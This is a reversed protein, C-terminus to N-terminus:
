DGAEYVQYQMKCELQRLTTRPDMDDVWVWGMSLESNVFQISM